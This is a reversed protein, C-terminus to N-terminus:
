WARRDQQAVRDCGAYSPMSMVAVQLAEEAVLDIGLGCRGGQQALEVPQRGGVRQDAADTRRPSSAARSTASRSACRLPSRTLV